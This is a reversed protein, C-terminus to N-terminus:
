WTRSPQGFMAILGDEPKWHAPVGHFFVQKANLHIVCLRYYAIHAEVTLPPPEGGLVASVDDYIYVAFTDGAHLYDPVERFEGDARGGTLRVRRSTM